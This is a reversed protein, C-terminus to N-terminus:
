CKIGGNEMSAIYDSLVESRFEEPIEAGWEIGILDSPKQASKIWMNLSNCYTTNYSAFSLATELIKQMDTSSFYRCPQGDEHYEIKEKGAMIKVYTAFLNIQDKEKLSFHETGTSIEIDVGKYITQECANGVEKYKEARMDELSYRDAYENIGLNSGREFWYEFDAEIDDKSAKSGTLIFYVEDAEYHMGPSSEEMTDNKREISVINKHLYVDAIGTSRLFYDIKEIHESSSVKRLM